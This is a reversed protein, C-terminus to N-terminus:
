RDYRYVTITAGAPHGEADREIIVFGDGRVTSSQNGAGGIALPEVRGDMVRVRLYDVRGVQSTVKRQLPLRQSRYPWDTSRGGLRRIARGAFFDYACLCAVPNGPLLFVPRELAASADDPTTRRPPLFGVGAPSSPRMAIGHVPLRGLQAVVGPAHDELGVSSGGSILIVDADSSVLAERLLDADDKLRLSKRPLGGDRRVLATLVVSNSDIIMTDRPKEGTPLLEDGTAMIEVSPRRVVQVPSEGLSALMGADQPRLRRGTPLVKDGARVDEGRRGVHKGPPVAALILVTGNEERATEAPVVADAGAPVAAGTMIRVCRGPEVQKKCPRGPYSEGALQLPLPDGPSAGFTESAIVAYGDMAARDFGPVDVAARVAGALIRGACEGVPVSEVALPRLTEDLLARVDDVDARNQFGRMRVDTPM